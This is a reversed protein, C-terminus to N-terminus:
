YGDNLFLILNILLGIIIIIILSILGIGVSLLWPPFSNGVTQATEVAFGTIEAFAM